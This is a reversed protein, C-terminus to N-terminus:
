NLWIQYSHNKYLMIVLSELLTSTYDVVGFFNTDYEFFYNRSNIYLM